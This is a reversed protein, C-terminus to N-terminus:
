TGSIEVDENFDAEELRVGNLIRGLHTKEIGEGERRIKMLLTRLFPVPSRKLNWRGTPPDIFGDAYVQQGQVPKSRLLGLCDCLETYEQFSRLYLSGTFLNLQVTLSRPVGAPSYPHGINYLQLKDLSAFSANARPAFIHLTVKAYKSIKSFLQNAEHPSIIVLTSISGNINGPVSLVFQVPRHYVDSVFDVRSPGTPPKVTGEFDATLLLGTPFQDLAFLRAASTTELARFAPKFAPSNAVLQGTSVLHKVHPHVTHVQPKLRTPREIQREEEIEPALEREQEESLTASGFGMAEFEQCRTVIKAINPNNLDWNKLLGQSSEEQTYPKYRAQLTQAEDELFAEADALTTAAGRLRNKNREFREGQVAWLPMSRKLDQWTETISWCIVDRVEIAVDPSKNTRERIKISIEDPVIFAVSQGTGLKRMRM